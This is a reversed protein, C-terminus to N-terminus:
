PQQSIYDPLASEINALIEEEILYMYAPRPPPPITISPTWEKYHVKVQHMMPPGPKHPKIDIAYWHFTGVEHHDIRIKGSSYNFAEPHQSFWPEANVTAKWIEDYTGYLERTTGSSCGAIVVLLAFLLVMPLCGSPKGQKKADRNYAWIMAAVYAIGFILLTSFLAFYLLPDTLVEKM